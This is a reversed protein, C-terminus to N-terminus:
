KVIIKITKQGKKVIVVSGSQLTTNVLTQGSKSFASGAQTGNISYVSIQRSDDVSLAKVTAKDRYVPRISYGWYRKGNYGSVDWQTFDLCPANASTTESLTSCWYRGGSYRKTGEYYSAAPLFIYNNNSGTVKYGDIGNLSCWEWSCNNRLEIIQAYTPIMWADGWLITAADDDKTLEALNDYYNNYGINKADIEMVYKTFGSITKTFGDADPETVTSKYHIYNSQSFDNTKPDIEGWAFHEGYDEPKNSGINCTAWLTRSPLGLDVWETVDTRTGSISLIDKFYNWPDTARYADIVAYPVYLIADQILNATFADPSTTPVGEAYCYLISPKCSDFAKQGIAKVGSGIFISSLGTCGLFAYRGISEVANPITISTVNSCRRFVGDEIITVGDPIIISALNTCGSFAYSGISTVGKPINLADLSKCGSFAYSGISTVDDPINISALSMCGSFAYNGISTVNKPIVTNKCGLFLTNDSKKIIANCNDRSDYVNNGSRVEIKEIDSYGSFSSADFQTIGEGFVLNLIRKNFWPALHQANYSDMAGTGSITLTNTSDVYNWILNDGCTGSEDASAMMPLLMVLLLLQKRM